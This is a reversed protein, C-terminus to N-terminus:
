VAMALLAGACTILMTSCTTGTVSSPVCALVVRELVVREMYIAM